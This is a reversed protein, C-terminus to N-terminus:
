PAGTGSLTATATGGPDAMVVLNTGSSGVITPTFRVDVDCSQGADLQAATCNNNSTAFQGLAGGQFSL